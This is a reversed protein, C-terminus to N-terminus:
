KNFGSVSGGAEVVNFWITHFEVSTDALSRDPFASCQLQVFHNRRKGESNRGYISIYVCLESFHLCSKFEFKWSQQLLSRPSLASSQQLSLLIQRVTCHCEVHSWPVSGEGLQQPRWGQSLCHCWRTLAGQMGPIFETLQACHLQNNFLYNCFSLDQENKDWFSKNLKPVLWSFLRRNLLAARSIKMSAFKSM